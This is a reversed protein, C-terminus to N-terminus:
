IGLLRDLTISIASRVPLHNFEGLGYIPELMYDFQEVIEETLGWGTGFVLLIAYNDSMEKLYDITILKESYKASTGVLLIEKETYNEAEKVADALCNEIDILDLAKSRNKNYTLGYGDTWHKMIRKIYQKQGEVPTVIFYKKVQYTKSVRAIDHIDLNTTATAVEERNKNYVPYHVLAIFIDKTPLNERIIEIDEKQLPLKRKKILDSRNNLTTRIKETKRWKEIEKHNGSLLVDPVEINKFVRPRTYHPYEVFNDSFSENKVSEEKGVVGPVLRSVAEIVIMAASEGGMLVFDGVSIEDDAFDLVRDDIGEYRGCILTISTNKKFEAAKEQNFLKGKASLIVVSGKEENTLSSLANYVPEIQLVMGSGGGFPTDDVVKHKNTSFERINIVNYSILNNEVARKLISYKFFNDILEPFLTLINFHLM